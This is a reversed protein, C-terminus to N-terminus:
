KIIKLHFEEYDKVESIFNRPDVSARPMNLHLVEGNEDYVKFFLASKGPNQIIHEKLEDVLQATISPLQIHIEIAKTYRAMAESLLELKTIKLEYVGEKKWRPLEATCRVRVYQDKRSLIHKYQEFDEGFLIMDISGSYDEITFRGYPNGKKTVLNTSAPISVMGGFSMPQNKIRDLEKPLKQEVKKGNFADKEVPKGNKIDEEEQAKEKAKEEVVYANLKAIDWQIEEITRNVFEKMEIKYEDLPHGSLYFGVVDFEQKLTQLQSWPKAEPIDPDPLDVSGLDGFLSVQASNKEEQYRHAFQIIMELFTSSNENAKHFFVHRPTNGFSDFAGAFAMAELSKKNVARLNVRKVLDFISKFRGNEKREGIIMDVAAGGVGKIANLGFRIDGDENVNFMRGSENIDPGLVEFGQTKCDEIFFTVKEIDNMNNSLVAAMFEAPYHAKLYATQFSVYSYCTAHSKNFAYKAFAEWDKWIKEILKIPEKKMDVCGKMFPENAMCGDIFLVKLEDMMAKIKKGMAKRLSDSQGRTFNGLKRSLLMVQEQYVTIGYTEELYEEMMPHDYEIKSRGHKRNIFDEIYEMPGPRYLANMAILDEFKDPKLEKLHKKMGASEFQFLGTTDGVSYTEYTKVDLLDVNEIDVEIGKSEKVNEIAAKIISLTKLGLFDMKLLGIDEVHKGDYQTVYTLESDKTTSIPVYNELDEKGIIIGCAHTGTNRVSGELDIAYRLVEAAESKSKRIQNLESVEKFADQLTVGPRSPVMKQLAMTDSLPYQQVRGVDRISSKAAMSGFTIIHAVRKEGYKNVVWELIKGRGEDDFDIDIDPMSVRDPNLFREFLLNYKVPDIETIRLSYAVASGAASGRGPGVVVGMDRAAKLFDWVILFYGPFGMKKITELEFDLREVLEESLEKGWRMLAGEYVIHKLYENEDTFGEPLVFDPMIPKSDLEYSEIKDVVEQTNAISEPVDQFLLKMEAQTKFWEQGTYRMRNTDAVNKGTSICMLRDQVEADEKNLFHVDNTALVKVKHKKAFAILHENVFRQDEYIKHDWKDNDAKHRQIELYYDEGFAEKFWLVSKEAEAPTENMLKQNVEGGLCASLVIIGEKYKQLLDKDIRPKYYNGELWALSVMKMLNHYGTKNKALIILHWGSGDIKSEKRYMGRRAVYVECGLIPKVGEKKLAKHFTKVGFMNGHDTIAVAQMGDKAAKKAIGPISTAGDLISFQTHVHLHAFNVKRLDIEGQTIPKEEVVVSATAEETEGALDKPNYAKTNLGIAQFPNPNHRRFDELCPAFLLAKTSPISPM